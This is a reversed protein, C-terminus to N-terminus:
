VNEERHAFERGREAEGARQENRMGIEEVRIEAAADEDNGGAIGVLTGEAEDQIAGGLFGNAVEEGVAFEAEEIREGDKEPTGDGAVLQGEGGEV